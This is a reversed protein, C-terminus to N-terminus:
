ARPRLDSRAVDGHKMRYDARHTANIERRALQLKKALRYAGVIWAIQRVKLGTVPHLHAPIAQRRTLHRGRANLRDCRPRLRLDGPLDAPDIRAPEHQVTGADPQILQAQGAACYRAGLHRHATAPVADAQDGPANLNIRRAMTHTTHVVHHQLAVHM